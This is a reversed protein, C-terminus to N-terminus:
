DRKRPTDTSAPWRASGAHSRPGLRVWEKSTVAAANLTAAPLVLLTVQHQVSWTVCQRLDLPYAERTLGSYGALFGGLAVQEDTSLLEDRRAVVTTTATQM